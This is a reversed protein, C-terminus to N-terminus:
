DRRPPRAVAAYYVENLIGKSVTFWIRSLDSYTTGVGDKDSRTWRPEIGPGGTAPHEKLLTAMLVGHCAISLPCLRLGPAHMETAIVNTALGGRRWLICLADDRYHNLSLTIFLLIQRKNM